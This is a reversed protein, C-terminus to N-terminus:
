IKIDIISTKCVNDCSDEPHKKKSNKEKESSNRGQNKEYKKRIGAEHPSNKSYVKKQDMDIKQQSSEVLQQQAAQNKNMKDANVKSMESTKPIVVQFDVPKISM